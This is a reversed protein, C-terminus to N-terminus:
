LVIAKRLFNSRYSVRPTLRMVMSRSLMCIRFSRLLIAIFLANEEFIDIIKILTLAWAFAESRFATGM